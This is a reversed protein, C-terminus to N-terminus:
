LKPRGHWLPCSARAGDWPDDKVESNRVWNLDAFKRAVTLMPNSHSAAHPRCSNRRPLNAAPRALEREEREPQEGARKVGEGAGRRLGRRRLQTKNETGM